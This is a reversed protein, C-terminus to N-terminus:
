LSGDAAAALWRNFHILESERLEPLFLRWWANPIIRTTYGSDQLMRVCQTELAQSHTEIIWRGQHSELLRRAGQLIAVEGGDVDIKILCPTKTELSPLLSDLTCEGDGDRTGVYSSVLTWRPDDSLE